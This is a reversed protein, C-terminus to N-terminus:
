NLAPQCRGFRTRSLPAYGGMYACTSRNDVGTVATISVSCLVPDHALKVALDSEDGAAATPDSQCRRLAKDALPGIDKDGSATLRLQGRGDLVDSFVCPCQLTVDRLEVIEAANERRDFIVFAFEVDDEGIGPDRLIGREALDGFLEVIANRC